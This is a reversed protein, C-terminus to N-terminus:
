RATVRHTAHFRWTREIHLIDTEHRIDAPLPAFPAALQVIRMAADDLMRHGSSRRLNVRNVSGDANISVDLLLSGSLRQRRAADPYNLNGVREVKTRWADMYAAYKSARTRATVWKRRPRAAYESLRRDVEANLSAYALTSTPLEVAEARPRVIRAPPAPNTRETLARPRPKPRPPRLAAQVEATNRQVLVSTTEPSHAATATQRPMTASVVAAKQGRLPAPLPTSPRKRRDDESGGAQNAQALFDADEPATASRAHVLVVDLTSTQRDPAEPKTFTVGLIVLAHITGAIFLAAFFRDESREWWRQTHRLEERADRLWVTDQRPKFAMPNPLSDAIM